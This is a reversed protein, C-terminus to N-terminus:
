KNQRKLETIAAKAEEYQIEYSINENLRETKLTQSDYQNLLVFSRTYQSLIELLGKAESLQLTETQASSQILQVTRELQQLNQSIEMLRKENVAYGNVLYEKLRQTAWQRFQTGRKSSIRYGVSLIADLNYYKVEKEQTKSQIAGHRTTHAFKACVVAEQLEDEKFINKLHKSIVTRDRQFLEAIQSQTLWFTEGIFRVEVQAQNDSNQYILIENM